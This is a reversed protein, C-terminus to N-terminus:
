LGYKDALYDYIIQEDTANDAVKRLIIEKVQINSNGALNAGAGLTFGAMDSAGFNGTTATTENIILKSSAGNFLLRLIGFTDVALNGNATSFTGAYGKLESTNVEQYLAGSNTGDGDFVIKHNWTIQKFVIYIMEPQEFAFSETKMHDNAGDFLIGDDLVWVPKKTVTAQLLDHGSGLYDNWREVSDGSATKTITTLNDAIYWAVTNGDELVAPTGEDDGYYIIFESSQANLSITFLFILILQKM